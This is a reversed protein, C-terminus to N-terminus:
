DIKLYIYRSGGHASRVFITVGKALPYKKLLGKADEVSTVKKDQIRMILDGESLGFRAGEGQPDVQTIVAGKLDKYNYKEALDSTLTSLTIGLDKVEATSSEGQELSEGTIKQSFFEKPMKELTLTLDIKKKDRWVVLKVKAGPPTQAVLNQLQQGSSIKTGDFELIVDGSKLGSKAAPTGSMVESVIAGHVESLGFFKALDGTVEQLQIGLYSRTVQESKKLQDTVFKVTNSPIAFGIGANSASRSVIATNIGIVQGKLNVLPGGSNGPNIAADTQIYNSYKVSASINIGRGIYSVIGQTITNDLGFPNGAALVWDGVQVNESDALELFHLDKAKIKILALDTVPDNRVWEPTFERDDSFQVRIKDAGEVVHNNTVIYGDASIIVGSGVGERSEPPQMRPQPGMPDNRFFRRFFDDDFPSASPERSPKVTKSATIHVVSPQVKRAIYNFVRSARELLEMDAESPPNPAERSSSGVVQDKATAIQDSHQFYFTASVAVVFGLAM